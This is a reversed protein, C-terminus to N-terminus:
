ESLPEMRDEASSAGVGEERVNLSGLRLRQGLGQMLSYAWQCNRKKEGGSRGEAAGVVRVRTGLSSVRCAGASTAFRLREWGPGEQSCGAAGARFLSFCFRM